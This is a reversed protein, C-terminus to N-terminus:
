RAGNRLYPPKNSSFDGFDGSRVWGLRLLRGGEPHSRDFKTIFWVNRSVLINLSESSSALNRRKFVTGSHSPCVSLRVNRRQSYWRNAYRATSVRQYFSENEGHLASLAFGPRAIEHRGDIRRLCQHVPNHDCLDSIKSVLRM